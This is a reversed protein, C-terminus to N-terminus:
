RTEVSLSTGAVSQPIEDVEPSSPGQRLHCPRPRSESPFYFEQEEREIVIQYSRRAVGQDEGESTVLEVEVPFHFVATGDERKQVQKVSLRIVKQDRNWEYQVDLEPFGPGHLWQDFFVSLNRGTVEEIAIRLDGTEAVGLAHKGLYHSLCKFFAEDGLNARLMSLVFAGKEYAHRDMLEESYRYKRCVIPRRHSRRDEGLYVLMDQFLAFRAEDSGRTSERWLFESYTAFSENLWIESWDKCTV